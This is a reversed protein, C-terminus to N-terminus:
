KNILIQLEISALIRLVSFCYRDAVHNKNVQQMKYIIVFLCYVISLVAKGHEIYSCFNELM